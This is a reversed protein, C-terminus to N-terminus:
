SARCSTPRAAGPDGKWRNKPDRYFDNKRRKIVAGIYNEHGWKSYLDFVKNLREDMAVRQFQFLSLVVQQQREHDSQSLTVIEDKYRIRCCIFVSVRQGVFHKAEFTMRRNLSLTILPLKQRSGIYVLDRSLTSTHVSSISHNWVLPGHAVLLLVNLNFLFWYNNVCMSFSSPRLPSPNSLM